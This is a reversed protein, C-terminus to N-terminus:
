WLGTYFHIPLLVGFGIGLILLTALLGYRVLKYRAIAAESVETATRGKHKYFYLEFIAFVSLIFGLALGFVLWVLTDIDM